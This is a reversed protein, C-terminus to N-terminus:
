NMIHLLALMLIQLNFCILVCVIQVLESQPISLCTVKPLGYAHLIYAYVLTANCSAYHWIRALCLCVIFLDISRGVNVRTVGTGRM